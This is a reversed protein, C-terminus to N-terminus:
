RVRYDASILTRRSFSTMKLQLQVVMQQLETNRQQLDEKKTQLQVEKQQLNETLEEERQLQRQELQHVARMHQADKQQLEARHTEQLRFM